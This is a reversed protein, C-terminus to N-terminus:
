SVSIEHVVDNFPVNVNGVFVIRREAVPLVNGVHFTMHTIAEELANANHIYTRSKIRSVLHLRVNGCLCQTM